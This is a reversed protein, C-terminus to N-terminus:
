LLLLESFYTRYFGPDRTLLRDSQHLAHSAVLFDAVVRERAGKRTRLYVRWRQGADHAAILSTPTLAIGVSKLFREMETQIAFHAGLEAAVVENIVM